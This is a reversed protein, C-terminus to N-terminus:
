GALWSGSLFEVGESYYVWLGNGLVDWEMHYFVEDEMYYDVSGSGDANVVVDYQVLYDYEDDYGDMYFNLHYAGSSDKNWAYKWYLFEADDVDEGGYIAAWGWNYIVEGQNGDETEWADIYNYRPGNNYSIDMAWYRKGSREEYSWYFTFSEGGYNWSWQWTDAGNSSKSLSRTADDPVEMNDIFGAMDLASEVYSVCAQANEDNSNKLGDPLLDMVEESDFSLQKFDDPPVDEKNCGSIFLALMLLATLGQLNKRHKM